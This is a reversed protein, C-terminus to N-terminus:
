PCETRLHTHALPDRDEVEFLELAIWSREGPEVVREAVPAEEVEYSVPDSGLDHALQM